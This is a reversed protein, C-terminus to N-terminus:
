LYAFLWTDMGLGCWIFLVGIYVVLGCWIARHLAYSSWHVLVASHFRFIELSFVKPDIRTRHFFLALRRAVQSLAPAVPHTALLRQVIGVHVGYVGYGSTASLTLDSM